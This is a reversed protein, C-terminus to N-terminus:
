ARCECWGRELLDGGLEGLVERLEHELVRGGREGRAVLRADAVEVEAGTAGLGDAERGVAPRLVEKAGGLVGLEHPRPDEADCPLHTDPGREALEARM